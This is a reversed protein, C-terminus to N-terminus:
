ETLVERLVETLEDGVCDAVPRAAGNSCIGALKNAGDGVAEAPKRVGPRDDAKNFM